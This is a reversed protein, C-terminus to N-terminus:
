TAVHVERERLGLDIVYLSYDVFCQQILRRQRITLSSSANGVLHVLTGRVGREFTRLDGSRSDAMILGLSGSVKAIGEM